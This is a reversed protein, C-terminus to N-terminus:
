SSWGFKINAVSNYIKTVFDLVANIINAWTVKSNHWHPGFRIMVSPWLSVNWTMQHVMPGRLSLLLMKNLWFEKKTIM